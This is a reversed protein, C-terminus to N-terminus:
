SSTFVVAAENNLSIKEKQERSIDADGANFPKCGGM